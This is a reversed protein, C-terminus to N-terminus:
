SGPLGVPREVDCLSLITPVVDISNALHVNDIKAAIRRPWRVMIPTRIGGDYQSLKSKPAYMSEDPKNIWGNDALYVVITDDSLKRDDIFGLLEGVTEDFWECSAYYQALGEHSTKARYKALLREPPNHPMHPMMPAYFVFFPKKASQAQEIFTKVPELGQRGITLGADGHRGGRPRTM